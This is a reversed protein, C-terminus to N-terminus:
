ECEGVTETVKDSWGVAEDSALPVKLWFVVSEIAVCTDSDVEADAPVNVFCNGSVAEDSSDSDTVTECEAGVTDATKFAVAVNSGEPEGDFVAGVGVAGWDTVFDAANSGDAVRRAEELGETDTGNVPVFGVAM